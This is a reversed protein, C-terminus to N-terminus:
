CLVKIQRACSIRHPQIDTTGDRKFPLLSFTVGASEIPDDPIM